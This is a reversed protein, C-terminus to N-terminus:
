KLGLQNAIQSIQNYQEQTMLGSELLYNVAQHPNNMYQQPISVNRQTLFTIPNSKFQQFQTMLQNQFLPNAM